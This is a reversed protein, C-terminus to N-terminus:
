SLGLCGRGFWLERSIAANEPDKIQRFHNELAQFGYVPAASFWLDSAREACPNIKTIIRNSAASSYLLM